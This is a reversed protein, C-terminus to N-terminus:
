LTRGGCFLRATKGMIGSFPNALCHFGPSNGNSLQPVFLYFNEALKRSTRNITSFALNM